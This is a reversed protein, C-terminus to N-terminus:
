THALGNKNEARLCELFGKANRTSTQADEGDGGYLYLFITKTM